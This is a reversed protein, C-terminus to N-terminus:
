QRECNIQEKAAGGTVGSECGMILQETILEIEEPSLKKFFSFFEADALYKLLAKRQGADKVRALVQPRIKNLYETYAEYEPSLFASLEDRVRRALAPSSGATSVAVTLLGKKLLAPLFFSCNEPESVTNVLIGRSRCEAAAARNLAPDDTACIVIFKDKLYAPRYSDAIYTFEGANLMNELVSSLSPSVVTVQARYSLMVKVKREAVTGGGIVFCQRDKLDVHLPCFSDLLCGGLIYFEPRRSLFGSNKAFFIAGTFAQVASEGCGARESSPPHLSV